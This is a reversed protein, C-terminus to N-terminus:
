RNCSASWSHAPTSVPQISCPSFKHVKGRLAELRIPQETATIWTSTVQYLSTEAFASGPLEQHEAHGPQAVSASATLIGLVMALCTCGMSSLCPKCRRM